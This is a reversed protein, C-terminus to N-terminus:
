DYNRTKILNSLAVAVFTVGLTVTAMANITPPVDTKLKSFVYVPFTVSDIGSVYFSIVVDDLSMAFALLVGSVIAPLILPVIVTMFARLPSAGLDRAAEEYGPDLGALRSRVNIMVYPICFTSHALVLTLKSPPIGVLAFTTMFALGLVIEPVMIPLSAITEFVAASRLKARTLAVASLTGIVAALACSWCAVQLSNSFANMIQANEFLKPYWETTFGTWMLGKPQQNFSFAIVVLVPLYIFLLGILLYLGPVHRGIRRLTKM